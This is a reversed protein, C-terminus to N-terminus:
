QASPEPDRVVPMTLCHLTGSNRPYTLTNLDVPKVELGLSELLALGRKQAEDEGADYLVKGPELVVTGEVYTNPPKEIVEMGVDDELYRVFSYPVDSHDVVATNVDVINLPVDLHRAESTEPIIKVEIDPNMSQVVEKVQRAGERNTRSSLGIALHEPTLWIVSGGEVTGEGNITHLIPCGIEGYTKMTPLEEGRRLRDYMRGIITGGPVTFSPDRTYISKVLRPPDNTEPKREIVEVGEEEFANKLRQYDEQMEDLDPKETYRWEEVPEQVSLMEEGPKHLLVAQLKGVETNVGWNRGWQQELDDQFHNELPPHYESYIQGFTEIQDTVSRDGSKNEM